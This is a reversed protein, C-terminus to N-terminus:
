QKQQKLEQLQQKLKIEQIQQNLYTNYDTGYKVKFQLMEAPIGAIAKLIDLPINLGALLESQRQLHVETLIGSKFTLNTVAQTFAPRSINIPIAPEYNPLYITQIILFNNHQFTFEYPWVPRYYISRSDEPQMLRVNKAQLTATADKSQLRKLSVSKVGYEALKNEISNTGSTYQIDDPDITVDFPIQPIPPVQEKPGPVPAGPLPIALKAAEKAIDILRMIIPGVQSQSTVDVKSLLNNDTLTVTITDDYSVNELYNLIYCKDPDPGYVTDVTFDYVNIDKTPKYQIHIKAKPLYYVVPISYTKQASLEDPSSSQLAHHACSSILFILSCLVYRLIKDNIYNTISKNISEFM